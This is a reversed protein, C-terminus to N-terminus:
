SAGLDAIYDSAAQEAAVRARLRDLWDGLAKQSADPLSEAESLADALSGDKLRAEIRSIISAADNGEQENKPRGAVVSRLRASAQGLVGDDANAEIEAALAAQARRGWGRLLWEPTAVGADASARLADPVTKGTLGEIEDLANAYAVGNQMRSNLATIAARLSANRIAGEVQGVATSTASQAETAAM